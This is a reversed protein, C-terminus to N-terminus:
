EKDYDMLSPNVYFSGLASKITYGDQTEILVQYDYNGSLILDEPELYCMAIQEDLNVVVAEKTVKHERRKLKVLVKANKLINIGTDGTDIKIQLNASTHQIFM